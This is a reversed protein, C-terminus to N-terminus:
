ATRRRSQNVQDQDNLYGNIYEENSIYIYERKRCDDCCKGDTVEQDDVNMWYGQKVEDSFKDEDCFDCCSDPQIDDHKKTARIEVDRIYESIQIATM